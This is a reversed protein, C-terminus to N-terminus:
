EHMDTKESRSALGIWAPYAEHFVIQKVSRKLKPQNGYQLQARPENTPAPENKEPAGMRPHLTRKERSFSPYSIVIMM